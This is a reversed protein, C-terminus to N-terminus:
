SATTLHIGIDKLGDATSTATHGTGFTMADSNFTGEVLISASKAGSTTDVDDNLIAYPTQSGDGAASLSTTLEGNATIKGLLTGRSLTLGSAIVGSSTKFDTSAILNAYTRTGELAM